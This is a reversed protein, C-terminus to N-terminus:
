TDYRYSSFKQDNNASLMGCQHIDSKAKMIGDRLRVPYHFRMCPGQQLMAGPAATNRTAHCWRAAVSSLCIRCIAEWRPVNDTAKIQRRPVDIPAGIEM